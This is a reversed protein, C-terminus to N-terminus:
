VYKTIQENAEDIVADSYHDLYVGTVKSGYEHGLAEAILDKSYGLSKAITAWSDGAALTHFGKRLQEDGAGDIQTIIRKM